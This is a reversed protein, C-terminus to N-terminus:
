LWTLKWGSLPKINARKIQMLKVPKPNIDEEEYRLKIKGSPTIEKDRSSDLFLQNIFKIQNRKVVLNTELWEFTQDDDSKIHILNTPKLNIDEDRYRVKTNESLM